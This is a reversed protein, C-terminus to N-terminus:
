NNNNRFVKQANSVDALVEEKEKGFKECIIDVFKLADQLSITADLMNNGLMKALQEIMTEYNKMKIKRENKPRSVKVTYIIGRM